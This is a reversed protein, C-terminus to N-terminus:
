RAKNRTFHFIEMQGERRRAEMDPSLTFSDSDKTSFVKRQDRLAESPTYEVCTVKDAHISLAALDAAYPQCDIAKIRDNPEIKTTAVGYVKNIRSELYSVKEQDIIRYNAIRVYLRYFQSQVCGPGKFFMDDFKLHTSTGYLSIRRSVKLNGQFDDECQSTWKGVLDFNSSPM